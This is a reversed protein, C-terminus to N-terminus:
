EIVEDARLLVSQPIIIGLSKAIKLNIVLELKTPQQLPLDAPNAGRLIKDVYEVATQLVRNNDLGYSLLVGVRADDSTDSITPVRYQLASAAIRAHNEWNFSSPWIYVADFGEAKVQEFIDDIEAIAMPYFIKWTFGLSVGATSIDQQMQEQDIPEAGGGYMVALRSFRPLIDKLLEARKAVLDYSMPAVGTVNAEPHALNTVIGSRLPDSAATVIPIKATEQKLARVARTTAAFLVDPKRSVLEAALGPIRENRSGPAVCDVVLTRGEIWGREALAQLLPTTALTPGGPAPCSIPALVGLRKPRANTQAIAPNCTAAILVALALVIVCAVLAAPKHTILSRNQGLVGM